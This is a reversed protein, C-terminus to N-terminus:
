LIGFNVIHIATAGKVIGIITKNHFFHTIKPLLNCQVFLKYAKILDVANPRNSISAKYLRGDTGSLRAIFAEMLSHFIREGGNGQPNDLSM